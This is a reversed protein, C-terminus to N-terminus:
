PGVNSRPPRKKSGVASRRSRPFLGVSSPSSATTKSSESAVEFVVREGPRLRDGVRLVVWDDSGLLAGNLALPAGCRTWSVLIDEGPRHFRAHQRGLTYHFRPIRLSVWPPPDVGLSWCSGDPVGSLDFTIPVDLKPEILVIIM